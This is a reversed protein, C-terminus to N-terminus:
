WRSWTPRSSCAAPQVQWFGSFRAVCRSSAAMAAQFRRSQGRMLFFRRPQAGMDSEDVFGSEQQNRRDAARPARTSLRRQDAVDVLVVPDRANGRHRDARLAAPEPQIGLKMALVDLLGFDAMEQTMQQPVKAAVEEHDPVIAFGVLAFGDAGQAAAERAQVQLAEGGIGGFEIGVLGDPVWHVVRQRVAAGLAQVLQRGCEAFSEFSQTAGLGAETPADVLGFEGHAQASWQM